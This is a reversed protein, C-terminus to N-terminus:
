RPDWGGSGSREGAAGRHQKAQDRRVDSRPSPRRVAAAGEAWVWPWESDWPAVRSWLNQGHTGRATRAGAQAADPRDSQTM